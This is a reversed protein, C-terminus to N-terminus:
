VNQQRNLYNQLILCAALKDIVKKRKKRSMDGELLIKHGAVTTLREDWKKVPLKIDQGIAEIFREVEEAKKGISGDMNKPFGVIIESVEYKDILVKLQTIDDKLNRRAITVIGQATYGLPDSVAVGITKEGVDLAMIRM